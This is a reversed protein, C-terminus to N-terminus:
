YVKTKQITISQPNHGKWCWWDIVRSSRFVRSVKNLVHFFFLTQKCSGGNLYIFYIFYFSTQM